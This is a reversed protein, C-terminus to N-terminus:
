TLLLFKIIKNLWVFITEIPIYTGFCSKGSTTFDYGFSSVYDYEKKLKFYIKTFSHDECNSIASGSVKLRQEILSM